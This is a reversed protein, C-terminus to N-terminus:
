VALAFNDSSDTVFVILQFSTKLVELLFHKLDNVQLCCEVAVTKFCLEIQGRSILILLLRKIKHTMIEFPDSFFEESHWIVLNGSVQDHFELSVEGLETIEKLSDVLIDRLQTNKLCRSSNM